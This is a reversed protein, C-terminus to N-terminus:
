KVLGGLSANDKRQRDLVWEEGRDRIRKELEQVAEFSRYVTSYEDTKADREVWYGSTAWHTSIVLCYAKDKRKKRYFTDVADEWDKFDFGWQGDVTGDLEPKYKKRM